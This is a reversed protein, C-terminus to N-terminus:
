RDFQMLMVSSQIYVFEYLILSKVSENWCKGIRAITMGSKVAVMIGMAPRHFLFRLMGRAPSAKLM